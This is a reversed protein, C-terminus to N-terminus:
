VVHLQTTKNMVHVQYMVTYMCHVVLSCTATNDQETDMNIGAVNCVVHIYIYIAIYSQTAKNLIWETERVCGCELEVGRM